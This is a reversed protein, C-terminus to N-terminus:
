LRAKLVIQVTKKVVLFFRQTVQGGDGFLVLQTLGQQAQFHLTDIARQAASVAAVHNGLKNLVTCLNLYTSPSAGVDPDVSVELQAAKQLHDLSPHLRGRRKELCGLNNYTAARLRLRDHDADGFLNTEEFEDTLLRIIPDADVHATVADHMRSAIRETSQRAAFRAQEEVDPGCFPYVLSKELNSPSTFGLSNLFSM